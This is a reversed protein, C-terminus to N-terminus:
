VMSPHSKQQLIEVQEAAYETKKSLFIIWVPMRNQLFYACLIGTIGGGIILVDTKQPATMKSFQPMTVTETWLSSM